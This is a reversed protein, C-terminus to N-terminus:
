SFPSLAEFTSYYVLSVEKHTSSDGNAGTPRVTYNFFLRPRAYWVLGDGQLDFDTKVNFSEVPSPTNPYPALVVVCDRECCCLTIM